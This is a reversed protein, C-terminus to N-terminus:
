GKKIDYITTVPWGITSDESKKFFSYIKITQVYSPIIFECNVRDSEGSEIKIDIKPKYPKGIRPWLVIMAKEDIPTENRKIRESIKPDLPLIKQVRIIGSKLDLTRKGVNSIIISVHLWTWQENIQRHAVVHTFNVKTSPEGRWFFWIGAAIIAAVTIVSQIISMWDKFKKLGFGM